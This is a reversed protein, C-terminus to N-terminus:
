WIRDTIYARGMWRSTEGHMWVADSRVRAEESVTETQTCTTYGSPTLRSESVQSHGVFGIGYAADPPRKYPQIYAMQSRARLRSGRSTLRVGLDSTSADQVLGSSFSVNM